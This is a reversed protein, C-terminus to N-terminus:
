YKFQNGLWDVIVQTKDLNDHVTTPARLGDMNLLSKVIPWVAEPLLETEALWKGWREFTVQLTLGRIPKSFRNVSM